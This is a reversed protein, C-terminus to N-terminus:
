NSNVPSAIRRQELDDIYKRNPFSVSLSGIFRYYFYAIEYVTSINDLKNGVEGWEYRRVQGESM